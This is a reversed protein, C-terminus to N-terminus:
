SPLSIMFKDGVLPDLNAAVQLAWTAWKDVAAEDAGNARARIRVEKVYARIRDAQELATADDLLGQIKAKRSAEEKQVRAAEAKQAAEREDKEKQARLVISHQHFMLTLRRHQAHAYKFIGQVIESLRDQLPLDDDQWTVAEADRELDHGGVTLRLRPEAVKRRRFDRFSDSNGGEVGLLMQVWQNRISISFREGAHTAGSVRCGCAELASVLGSLIRLRRRQLVGEFKPGYYDYMFSGPDATSKRKADNALLKAVIPHPHTLDRPVQLAAVAKAVDDLLETPDEFKPEELQAPEIHEEAKEAPHRLSTSYSQGMTRPLTTKSVAKGAEKKAWWGRPPVPVGARRCHKALAVDSINFQQALTRIPTSWVLKYLEERTINSM